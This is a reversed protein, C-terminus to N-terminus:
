ALMNKAIILKQIESTGEYIRLARVERYLKEVSSGSVLGKAGLLQVASDIVRQAAETAYYKAMSAEMSTRHKNNDQLWAARYVLLAASDIDVAMDALRAQTLQFDSLPKGFVERSRCHRLAETLARRALGLAAAGVSPRFIDLTTMAIRFGDRVEGLLNERPVMCDRFEITGLPHPAMTQIQNKVKFGPTGADVIFASISKSGRVEATRAFVVYIDAIGANSIWTKEGTICYKGGVLKAATQLGAVDSGCEPESLAFACVCNGSAVRELYRKKPEEQGFLAIPASGLGQMAFAFDILGDYSSFIERLLCLSRREFAPSPASGPLVIAYKLWGVRGLRRVLEQAAKNVDGHRINSAEIRAWDHAEAALKAHHSEFFPLQLFTDDIM